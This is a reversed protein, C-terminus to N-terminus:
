APQWWSPVKLGEKMIEKPSPAASGGVHLVHGQLPMPLWLFSRSVCVRACM